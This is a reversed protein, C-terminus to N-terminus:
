SAARAPRKRSRKPVTASFLRTWRELGFAMAAKRADADLRAPVLIERPGGMGDARAVLRTLRIAALMSMSGKTSRRIGTRQLKLRVLSALQLGLVTAFTHARLSDDTWQYSPGWPSVAGRKMRRFAREVKWQSRFAKVIWETSWEHQDTVIVRKGLRERILRRRSTTDTTVFLTPAGEEGGIEIRLVERVHERRTLKEIRRRLSTATYRRGRATGDREQQLRRAIKRLEKRAKKTASELGRLQGKLLEPSEVVVLTRDLAGVQMRTRWTRVSRLRGPLPQLKGVAKGLAERAVTQSLALVSVSHYGNAGLALELQEGAFGGDRVLTRNAPGLAEHLRALTGLTSALVTKDSENGAYPRHFLPVSGTSSTMLALGVVKLDARKSKAHGRRALGSETTTDIFTDFNTTDYALVDTKLRYLDCARRAIAVQVKEYSEESVDRTMRHFVQGTFADNRLVAFRPLCSDLFRPLERKAGPACVRQLAVALVLDGLSPGVGLRPAVAEFADLVGLDEAVAILAGVDGVRQFGAEECQSPVFPEDSEVAGLSIQRSVPHKKGPVRVTTAAIRYRRGNIEREFIHM